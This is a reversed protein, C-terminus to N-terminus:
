KYNVRPAQQSTYDNAPNNSVSNTRVRHGMPSIQAVQQINSKSPKHM